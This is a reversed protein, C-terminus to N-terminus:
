FEKLFKKPEELNQYRGNRRNEEKKPCRMFNRNNKSVESLNGSDKRWCVNRLKKRTHKGEVKQLKTDITM